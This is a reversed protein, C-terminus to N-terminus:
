GHVRPTEVPANQLSHRQKELAVLLEPWESETIRRALRIMEDRPLAPSWDPTGPRRVVEATIVGSTGSALRATSKFEFRIRSYKFKWNEDIEGNAKNNRGNVAYDIVRIESLLLRLDFTDRSMEQLSIEADLLEGSRMATLLSTTSRDMLKSFGFISPTGADSAAEGSPTEFSWSWDDIEIQRVFHVTVSEGEIPGRTRSTLKMYLKAVASM